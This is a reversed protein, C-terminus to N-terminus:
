EGNDKCEDQFDRIYNAKLIDMTGAFTAPSLNNEMQHRIIVAHMDDYFCAVSNKEDMNIDNTM